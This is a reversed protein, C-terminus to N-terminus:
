GGGHIHIRHHFDFQRDYYCRATGAPRKSVGRYPRVSGGGGGHCQCCAGALGVVLQLHEEDLDHCRLHRGYRIWVLIGRSRCFFDFHLHFAPHDKERTHQRDEPGAERRRLRRLVQQAQGTGHQQQDQGDDPTEVTVATDDDGRRGRFVTQVFREGPRGRKNQHHRSPSHSDERGSVVAARQKQSHSRYNLAM